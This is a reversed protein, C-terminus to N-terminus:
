DLKIGALLAGLSTAADGESKFHVTEKEYTREPAEEAMLAKM